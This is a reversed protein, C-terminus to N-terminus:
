FALDAGQKAYVTFTAYIEKAQANTFCLILALVIIKKM